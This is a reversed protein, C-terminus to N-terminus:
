NRTFNRASTLRNANELKGRLEVIEMEYKAVLQRAADANRHAENRYHNSAEVAAALASRLEALERQRHSEVEAELRSVKEELTEAM